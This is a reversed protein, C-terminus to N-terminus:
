SSGRFKGLKATKVFKEELSVKEIVKEKVVAEAALGQMVPLSSMLLGLIMVMAKLKKKM